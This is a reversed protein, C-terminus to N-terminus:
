YMEIGLPTFVSSVQDLFDGLLMLHKDEGAMVVVIIPSILDNAKLQCLIQGQRFDYPRMKLCIFNPVNNVINFLELMM